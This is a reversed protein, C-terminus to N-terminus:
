ATGIPNIDLTEGYRRSLQQRRRAAKPSLSIFEM